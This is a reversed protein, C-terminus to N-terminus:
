GCAKKLAQDLDAIIDEVNELGISLRILDSTVGTKLQEEETLQQHTTTAPHIALSRADGINALHSILELSEIFRRGAEKGGKIGFTVIGGYKGKLYKKAQEHTKNSELDPYNVWSVNPHDKLFRAVETANECHKEMRLSLTELGLLLLFSNFPSICTGLDRLLQVRCKAIYAAEKFHEVYRIGHYSPDPDTFEPFKGNAWNFKGSDVIIGAISTGNGSLYKTASYVIIDIGHEIPRFIYPAVTNDVILPIGHEHAIKSIGEFDPVTLGPNGITEVYFARTKGTVAKEFNEPDTEDVFKVSIGFKRPFTYRFLNYTGGYLANGSVIEDGESTINLIALTIASQGSSVALAGTGSELAAIRKELVDTTPNMIRTYIFGPEELSFLKAAHETSNFVYSTTQYIPVARAGTAPDPPEYGAHLALTDFGLKEWDM